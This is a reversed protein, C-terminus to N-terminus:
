GATGVQQVLAMASRGHGVSGDSCDNEHLFIFVDAPAVGAMDQLQHATAACLARKLAGSRPGPTATAGQCRTISSTGAPQFREAGPPKPTRARPARM